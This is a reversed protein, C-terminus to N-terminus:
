SSKHSQNSVLWMNEEKQHNSRIPITDFHNYIESSKIIQSKFFLFFMQLSM